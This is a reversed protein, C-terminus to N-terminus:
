RRRQFEGWAGKTKEHEHAPCFRKGCEPCVVTQERVDVGSADYECHPCTMGRRAFEAQRRHEIIWGIRVNNVIAVAVAAFLFLMVGRPWIVIGAIAAAGTISLLIRHGRRLRRLWM